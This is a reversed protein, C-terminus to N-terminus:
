SCMKYAALLRAHVSARAYYRNLISVEEQIEMTIGKNRQNRISRVSAQTDKGLSANYHLQRTAAEAKRCPRDEVPSVGALIKACGGVKSVAETDLAHLIPLLFQPKMGQQEVVM